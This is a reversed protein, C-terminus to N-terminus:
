HPEKQSMRWATYIGRLSCVICLSLLHLKWKQKEGKNLVQCSNLLFTTKRTHLYLTINQHHCNLNDGNNLYRFTCVLEETLMVWHRAGMSAGAPASIWILGCTRAAETVKFRSWGGGRGKMIFFVPEIHKNSNEWKLLVMDKAHMGKIYRWHIWVAQM